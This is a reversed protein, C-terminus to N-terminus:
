PYYREFREDKRLKEPRYPEARGCHQVTNLAFRAHVSQHVPAGIVGRRAQTKWTMRLGHPWWGPYKDRLSEVECHQMGSPAPFINLKSHDIELPHPLSQAEDIMWKLAIDSLRSETEPYSGGIDSHNGAFWLQVFPDVDGQRSYDVQKFGWRVRPFDARKEDIAIAHRAYGVRSSLARDYNKMRWKAFHWLSQGNKPFDTIRKFSSKFTRWATYALAAAGVCAFAKWFSFAFLWSVAISTAAIITTALAILFASILLRVLGKSGLSAVTDFVGIFYPQINAVQTDGSKYKLRFRRALEQRAEFHEKVDRGAGYEYVKIVAESAIARTKRVHKPFAGADGDTTPVGCLSILNAVCRATYAGRSFGFLLIRDGPEYLNLIAEYCDIINHTIGRGTASSFLKDLKRRVGTIGGRIDDDTGLGPDYFCVQEAPDILNSPDVRAARYIKYVNSLRQEPRVGGAQGTGDSFVCINKGM